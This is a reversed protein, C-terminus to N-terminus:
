KKLVPLEYKKRMAQAATWAKPDHELLNVLNTTTIGLRDAAPSVQGRYYDLLDLATALISLYRPNRPNVKLKGNRDIQEHLEAPATFTEPDVARRVALALALRLRELAKERNAGQLRSETAVVTIDTPRHRLTIASSTKNRKQGGRGSARRAYWDCQAILQEDTLEWFEM